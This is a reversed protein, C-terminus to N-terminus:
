EYAISLPSPCLYSLLFVLSGSFYAKTKWFCIRPIHIIQFETFSEMLVSWDWMVEVVLQSDMIKSISYSLRLHLLRGFQAECPCKRFSNEAFIYSIYWSPLSQCRMIKNEYSVWLVLTNMFRDISTRKFKAKGSNQM